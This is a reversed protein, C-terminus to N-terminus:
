RCDTHVTERRGGRHIRGMTPPGPADRLLPLAREFGSNGATQTVLFLPLRGMAGSLSALEDTAGVCIFQRFAKQIVSLTGRLFEGPSKMRVLDSVLNRGANHLTASAHTAAVDAEAWDRTTKGAPLTMM